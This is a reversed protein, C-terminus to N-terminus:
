LEVEVWEADKLKPKGIVKLENTYKKFLPIVSVTMTDPIDITGNKLTVKGITIDDKTEVTLKNKVFDLVIKDAKPPEKELARFQGKRNYVMVIVDNDNLSHSSADYVSKFGGYIKWDKDVVYVEGPKLMKSTEMTDQTIM